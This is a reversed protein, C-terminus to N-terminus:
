VIRPAVFTAPTAIAALITAHFGIGAIAVEQGAGKSTVQAEIRLEVQGSEDDWDADVALINWAAGTALPQVPEREPYDVVTKTLSATAIARIFQKDNLVPGILATFIEKNSRPNNSLSTVVLDSDFQGDIIILRNADKPGAVVAHLEQLNQIQDSQIKVAM